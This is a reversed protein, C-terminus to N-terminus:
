PFSIRFVDYPNEPNKEHTHTILVKQKFRKALGKVLGIVLPSLGIRESYYFLDLSGDELTDIKFQGPRSGPLTLEIRMHMENAGHLFDAMNDGCMNLLHGYGEVATYEIWYEGFKELLEAQTLEFRNATTAVLQFFLQDDYDKNAIFGEAPIQAEKCISCFEDEGKLSVVMQEIARIVIGYM